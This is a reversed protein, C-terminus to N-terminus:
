RWARERTLRDVTESLTIAADVLRRAAQSETRRVERIGTQADHLLPHTERM